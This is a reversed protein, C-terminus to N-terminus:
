KGWVNSFAKIPDFERSGRDNGGPRSQLCKHANAHRRARAGASGVPWGHPKQAQRDCIDSQPLALHNNEETMTPVPKQRAYLFM